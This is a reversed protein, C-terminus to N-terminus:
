ITIGDRLPCPVDCTPCKSSLRAGSRALAPNYQYLEITSKRAVILKDQQTMVRSADHGGGLAEQPLLVSRFTGDTGYCSIRPIGKESTILEGSPSSALYVPNCCGSFQGEGIGAKGFSSLYTGEADYVEVLHRGPNSCYVRGDIHTIGFSYSPVVFGHPSKIFKVFNGDTRYNCILKNQADTVFVQEGLVTLGCYDANEDCAKWSRTRKGQSDFVDVQQPMLVYLWGDSGVTLDRVEDEVTFQQKLSGEASYLKLQQGTAVTMLDKWLTFASIDGDVSFQAISEYPSVFSNKGSTGSSSDSPEYFLEEPKAFMRYLLSGAGAMIFGGAAVSGAVQLFRRRSLEKKEM